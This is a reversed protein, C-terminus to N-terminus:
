GFNARCSTYTYLGNVGLTVVAYGGGGPCDCTNGPPNGNFAGGSCWAPYSASCSCASPNARCSDTTYGSPRYQSCYGLLPHFGDSLLTGCTWGYDRTFIMYSGYGCNKPVTPDTETVTSNCVWNTGDFQLVQGATCPSPPAMESILHGPNPAVGPTLAYVGVGIIAIIGIAIFTYLWRNSINIQIKRGRGKKM